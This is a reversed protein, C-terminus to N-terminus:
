TTKERVNAYIKRKYKQLELKYIELEELYAQRFYKENLWKVGESTIMVTNDNYYRYEPHVKLLRSVAVNIAGRRKEFFAPLEYLPMEHYETERHPLKLEDELRKIQKNFFSIELDLYYKNKKLYVEEIWKVFELKLYTIREGIASCKTNIWKEFPHRRIMVKIAKNIQKESLKLEKQVRWKELQKFEM